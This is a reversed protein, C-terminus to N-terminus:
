KKPPTYYTFRTEPYTTPVPASPEVVYKGTFEKLFYEFRTEPAVWRPDIKEYVPTGADSTAKEPSYYGFTTEPAPPLEKLRVYEPKGFDGAALAKEPVYYSFRAEPPASPDAAKEEPAKSEGIVLRRISSQGPEVGRVMEVFGFSQGLIAELAESESVDALKLATVLRTGALEGGIIETKGVRSWEALVQSAPAQEVALSVRGNAFVIELGKVQGAESGAAVGLFVAVAAVMTAVAVARRGINM